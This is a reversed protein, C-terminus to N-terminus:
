LLERTIKEKTLLVKQQKNVIKIDSALMKLKVETQTSPSIVEIVSGKEKVGLWYGTTEYVTFSKLLLNCMVDIKARRKNETYLRYRIM